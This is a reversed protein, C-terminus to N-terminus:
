EIACAPPDGARPKPATACVANWWPMVFEGVRDNRSALLPLEPAVPTALESPLKTKQDCAMARLKKPVRGRKCAKDVDALFESAVSVQYAALAARQRMHDNSEVPFVEGVPQKPEPLKLIERAQGLMVGYRGAAITMEWLSAADAQAMALRREEEDEFSLFQAFEACGSVAALVLAAAGVTLTRWVPVLGFRESM